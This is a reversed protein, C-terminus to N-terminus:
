VCPDTGWSQLTEKFHEPNAVIVAPSNMFEDAIWQATRAGQEILKARVDAWQPDCISIVQKENATLERDPEAADSTHHNKNEHGFPNIPTNLELYEQMVTRVNLSRSEDTDELQDVTYLFVTFDTPKVALDYKQHAMEDFDEPTMTTKGMQQLFLEFRTSEMSVGKWPEPSDLVEQFPPALEDLGKEGIEAIRYNYFSQLMKVPHRMGVVFKANPSHTKMRALSKYNYMTTPCKFARKKTPDLTQITQDLLGAVRKDAQLPSAISCQEKESMATEPHDGLAKLLTTTGCKPFGAIIFDFTGVESQTVPAALASTEKMVVKAAAELKPPEVHAAQPPAKPPAEMMVPVQRLRRQQKPTQAGRPSKANKKDNLNILNLDRALVISQLWLLGLLCTQLRM